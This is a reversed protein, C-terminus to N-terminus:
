PLRGYENEVEVKHLTVREEPIMFEYDNGNHRWRCTLWGHMLGKAQVMADARNAAKFERFEWKDSGQKTLAPIYYTARYRLKPEAM